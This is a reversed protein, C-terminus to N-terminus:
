DLAMASWDNVGTRFVSPFSIWDIQGERTLSETTNNFGSIWRIGDPEGWMHEPSHLRLTIPIMPLSGDLNDRLLGIKGGSTNTARPLIVGNGSLNGGNSNTNNQNGYNNWVGSPGYAAVGNIGANPINEFDFETNDYKKTISPSPAAIICPYPHLAPTEYPLGFGLYAFQYLGTHKTLIMVRGGHATIWYVIPVNRLCMAVSNSGINNLASQEAILPDEFRYGRFCLNYIDQSEDVYTYIPVFINQTGDVGPARWIAEVRQDVAWTSATNGYFRVESLQLSAGVSASIYVRWYRKSPPSSPIFYRVSETSWGTQNTISQVTTWTNGDDSAQLEFNQPAQNAEYCGISFSKVTTNYNCNIRVWAPATTSMRSGTSGDFLSGIALGGGFSAYRDNQLEAVGALRDRVWKPSTNFRFSDGSVFATSGAQILFACKAGTYQTGVTATGLSGSVSGSVTFSTSSAATVTITEAVSSATGIYNLLRGNGTGTLTLGWCHGTATLFNDLVSLLSLYNSATGTIFSM